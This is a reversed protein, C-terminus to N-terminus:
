VTTGKQPHRDAETLFARDIKLEQFPLSHLYSLSSYGSGFDDLSLQVGIDQLESLIDLVLQESTDLFVNETVELCLMRAPLGYTTLMQRVM